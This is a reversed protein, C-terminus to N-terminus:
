APLRATKRISEIIAVPDDVTMLLDGDAVDPNRVLLTVKCGPKFHSGIADLHNAIDDAVRIPIGSM